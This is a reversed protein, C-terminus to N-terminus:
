MMMFLFNMNKKSDKKIKITYVLGDESIQPLSEALATILQPPRKLYHYAYLGEYIGGQMGLSTTDNTTVPDISNVKAGYIGYTVVKGEFRSLDEAKLLWFPALMVAILILLCFALFWRM